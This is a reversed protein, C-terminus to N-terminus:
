GRDFFALTEAIVREHAVGPFLPLRVLREYILDTNKMSGSVRGYRRGGPSSHLPVYHFTAQIRRDRLWQLFLNRRELNELLLYYVHANHQCHQPIHMRQLVDGSELAAFGEHYAEWAKMRQANIMEVNSLQSQLIAASFESPLFSSGIDAWTYKDALGALFEQRNTGKEHVIEARRLFQEDNIALSGAEGAVINKTAHFSFAALPAFSGLPRGKFTAGISQAADEILTIGRSDALDNLQDLPGCVGGYNVAVVAKTRDTIAAEVATSEINKTKADIDIFVPTVGSRVFANATSVFTYSPMIVEDGPGLDLLLPIMELAGTCSHTLLHRKSETLNQLIKECSKTFLGNGHWHGSQLVEQALKLEDGTAFPKSFPIMDSM